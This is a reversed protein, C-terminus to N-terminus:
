SNTKVLMVFVMFEVDGEHVKTIEQSTGEKVAEKTRREM